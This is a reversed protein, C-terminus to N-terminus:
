PRVEFRQPDSTPAVTAEVTTWRSRDGEVRVFPIEDGAGNVLLLDSGDAPDDPSRLALPVAIRVPGDPLTVSAQFPFAELPAAVARALLLACIV